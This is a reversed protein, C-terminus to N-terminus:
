PLCPPVSDCRTSSRMFASPRVHLAYVGRASLQPERPQPHRDRLDRLSDPSELPESSESVVLNGIDDEDDSSEADAKAERILKSQRLPWSLVQLCRCFLSYASMLEPSM